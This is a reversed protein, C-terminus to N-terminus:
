FIIRIKLGDSMSSITAKKFATGFKAENLAKWFDAFAKDPCHYMDDYWPVMPGCVCKGGMPDFFELPLGSVMSMDQENVFGHLECGRDSKLSRTIEFECSHDNIEGYSKLTAIDEPYYSNLANKLAIAVDAEANNLDIDHGNFFLHKRIM